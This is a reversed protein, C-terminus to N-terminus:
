KENSERSVNNSDKVLQESYKKYMTVADNIARDTRDFCKCNGGCNCSSTQEKEKLREELEVKTVYHINIYDKAAEVIQNIQDESFIVKRPENSLIDTVKKPIYPEKDANYLRNDLEQKTVFIESFQEKMISMIECVEERSLTKTTKVKNKDKKLFPM